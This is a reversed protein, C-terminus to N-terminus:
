FKETRNYKRCDRQLECKNYAKWLIDSHKVSNESKLIDCPVYIRKKIVNQKEAFEMKWCGYLDFESFTHNQGFISSVALLLIALLHYISKM